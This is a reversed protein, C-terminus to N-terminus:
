EKDKSSEKESSKVGGDFSLEEEDFPASKKKKAKNKKNKGHSDSKTMEILRDSETMNTLSDDDLIAVAPPITATPSPVCVGEDDDDDAVSNDCDIGLYM